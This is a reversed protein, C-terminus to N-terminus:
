THEESRRMLPTAGEGLTPEGPTHARYLAASRLQANPNAGHNLLLKILDLATTDGSVQPRAPRGYVEGLTSMDVAAYLAGMGTSDALNPDAGKLLLLAATDYHSNIIALLLATTGDPDTLNLDAGNEALVRAAGLSGQRAAYMLPTWSGHPLVTVVGELGFRDKAYILKTSRANVDAGHQILLKAAAPHNESAASMLATEGYSPERANVDIGGHDLLIRMVDANGTRAATMLITATPDAGSKLLAGVMAPNGNTTALELPTVGYRNPAKPNAGASLLTEVLPLDDARAAWALPTTGDPEPNNVLARNKLLARVAERNGSKIADILRPDTQGAALLFLAPSLIVLPVLVTRLNM